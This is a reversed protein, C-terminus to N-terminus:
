RVGDNTGTPALGAEAVWTREGLKGNTVAQAHEELAWCWDRDRWLTPLQSRYARIAALKREWDEETLEWTVPIATEQLARLAPAGRSKTSYPMEEYLLFGGAGVEAVAQEAAMRVIVHDIQQGIGAPCYIFTPHQAQIHKRLEGGIKDALLRDGDTPASFLDGYSRCRPQGPPEGDSRYIAEHFGLHVSASGLIAAAHLDEQRRAAVVRSLGWRRHLEMALPSLSEAAPEDATFVSMQVARGGHRDIAAMVGGCSLAADDLHPSVFLGVLGKV